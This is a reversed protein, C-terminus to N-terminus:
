QYIEMVRAYYIRLFKNFGAIKAVNYPLKTNYVSEEVVWKTIDIPTASIDVSNQKGELSYYIRTSRDPIFMEIKEIRYIPKDLIIQANDTTMIYDESRPSVALATFTNSQGEVVNEASMEIESCYEDIRKTEVINVIKEKRIEAGETDLRILSIVNNELVTVVAPM